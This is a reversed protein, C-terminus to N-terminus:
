CRECKISVFDSYINAIVRLINKVQRSKLYDNCVYKKDIYAGPILVLCSPCSTIQLLATIRDGYVDLSKLEGFDGFKSHSKLKMDNIENSQVRKITIDISELATRIISYLIDRDRKIIRCKYLGRTM